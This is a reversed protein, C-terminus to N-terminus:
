LAFAMCFYLLINNSLRHIRDMLAERDTNSPITDFKVVDLQFFDNATIFLRVKIGMKHTIAKAEMM